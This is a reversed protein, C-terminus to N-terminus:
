VKFKKKYGFIARSGLGGFFDLSEKTLSGVLYFRRGALKLM